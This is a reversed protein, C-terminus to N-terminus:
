HATNLSTSLFPSILTFLNKINTHEFLFYEQRLDLVLDSLFYVSNPPRPPEKKYEKLFFFFCLTKLLKILYLLFINYKNMFFFFRFHKHCICAHLNSKCHHCSKTYFHRMVQHQLADYCFQYIM